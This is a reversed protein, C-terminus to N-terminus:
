VNLLEKARATVAPLSTSAPAHLTVDCRPTLGTPELNLEVLTCGRSAAVGPLSAFPYVTASTGVVLMVACDELLETAGSLAAGPIQEGFFVVDPKLIEGCTCRPPRGAGHEVADSGVVAGCGLCCLRAGNGHFEIVRSSGARQHLNDINQTVVGRLLGAQELDALAQHAPNPAARRLLEELSHIMEWVRTPASRFADITAYEMPDFEDWLGGASRFDPIRSEVSLVAVTLAV